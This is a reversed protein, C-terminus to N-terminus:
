HRSEDDLMNIQPPAHIVFRKAGKERALGRIADQDGHPSQVLTYIAGCWESVIPNSLDLSTVLCAGDSRIFGNWVM